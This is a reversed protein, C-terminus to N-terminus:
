CDDNGLRKKHPANLQLHYLERESGDPNYRSLENQEDDILYLKGSQSDVELDGPDEIDTNIVETYSRTALNYEIILPRHNGTLSYEIMGVYM